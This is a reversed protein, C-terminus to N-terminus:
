FVLLVHRPEVNFPVKSTNHRSTGDVKVPLIFDGLTRAVVEGQM